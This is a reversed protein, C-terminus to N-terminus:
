LFNFKLSNLVGLRVLFLEENFLAEQSDKIEELIIFVTLSLKSEGFSEDLFDIYQSLEFPKNSFFSLLYNYVGGLREMYLTKENKKILRLIQEENQLTTTQLLVLYPQTYSNHRLNLRAQYGLIVNSEELKRIRYDFVERSVLLKKALKKHPVRANEVIVGLIKLDISDM